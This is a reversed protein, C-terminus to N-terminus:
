LTEWEGTEKNKYQIEVCGSEVEYYDLPEFANDDNDDDTDCLGYYHIDGNDALLRFECTAEGEEYDDSHVGVQGEPFIDPNNEQWLDRTIIWM